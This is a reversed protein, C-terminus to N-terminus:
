YAFCQGHTGKQLSLLEGQIHPIKSSSTVANSVVWRRRRITVIFSISIMWIHFSSCSVCCFFNASSSFLIICNQPNWYAHIPKGHYGTYDPTRLPRQRLKTIARSQGHRSATPRYFCCKEWLEFSPLAFSPVPKNKWATSSNLFCSSFKETATKATLDVLWQTVAYLGKMYKGGYKM